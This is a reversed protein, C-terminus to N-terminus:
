RGDERLPRSRRNASTGSRNPRARHYCRCAVRRSASGSHYSCDISTRCRIRAASRIRTTTRSRVDRLVFVGENSRLGFAHAFPNRGFPVPSIPFRDLLVAPEVQLIRGQSMETIRATIDLREVDIVPETLGVSNVRLAGDEIEAEITIPPAKGPVGEPTLRALTIDLRPTDTEVRGVDPLEKWLAIWTKGFRMEDVHLWLEGERDIVEVDDLRVPTFWGFSDGGAEITMRDGALLWNLLNNRLPTSAIVSPAAALVVVVIAAAAAAAVYYITRRPKSAPEGLTQESSNRDGNTTSENTTSEHSM